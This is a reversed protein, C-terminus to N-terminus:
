ENLLDEIETRARKLVDRVKGMQETSQLKGRRVGRVVTGFLDRLERFIDHMEHRFQHEFGKGFREHIDQVAQRNEELYKRGEDTIQYVRKGDDTKSTAYGMDELMQLTPYVSGPSPTYFGDGKAEMDKMLEYGHKPKDKLLDLIVFKVDGRGLFPPGGERFAFRRWM